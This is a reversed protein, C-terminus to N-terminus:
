LRLLRAKRFFNKTTQIEKFHSRVFFEKHENHCFSNKTRFRFM